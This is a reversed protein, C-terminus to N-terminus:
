GEGSAHAGVCPGRCTPDTLPGLLWAFLGVGALYGAWALPVWWQVVGAELLEVVTLPAGKVKDEEEPEEGGEDGEWLRMRGSLRGELEERARM